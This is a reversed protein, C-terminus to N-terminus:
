MIQKKRDPTKNEDAHATTKPQWRIAIDNLQRMVDKRLLLNRTCVILLVELSDPADSDADLIQVHALSAYTCLLNLKMQLLLACSAADLDSHDLLLMVIPSSETSGTLPKKSGMWAEM